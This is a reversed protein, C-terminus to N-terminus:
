LNIRIPRQIIM